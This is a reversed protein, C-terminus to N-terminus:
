VKEKRSMISNSDFNLCTSHFSLMFKVYLDHFFIACYTPSQESFLRALEVELNSYKLSTNTSATKRRKLNSEYEDDSSNTDDMAKFNLFFM